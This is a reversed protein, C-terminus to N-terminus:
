GGGVAAGFLVADDRYIYESPIMDLVPIYRTNSTLWLLVLGRFSFSWVGERGDEGGDCRCVRWPRSTATFFCQVYPYCVGCYQTRNDVVAVYQLGACFFVVEDWGGGTEEVARGVFM